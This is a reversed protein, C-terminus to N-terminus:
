ATVEDIGIEAAAINKHMLFFTMIPNYCIPPPKAWKNTALSILNIVFKSISCDHFEQEM